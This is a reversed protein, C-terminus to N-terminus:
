NWNWCHILGAAREIASLIHVHHVWDRTFYAGCSVMSVIPLFLTIDDASSINQVALPFQLCPVLVCTSRTDRYARREDDARSTIVRYRFPVRRTRSYFLLVVSVTPLSLTGRITLWRRAYKPHGLFWPMVLARGFCEPDKLHNFWWILLNDPQMSRYTIFRIMDSAADTTTPQTSRGIM